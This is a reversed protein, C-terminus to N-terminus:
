TRPEVVAPDDAILGDVGAARLHRAQEATRVTWVNVARGAEHARAVVDVADFPGSVYRENFLPTGHVMNWPPHVAACDHRDAVTLGDEISRHFVTALPATPDVTRAAALAGEYFSSVLLDHDYEGALSLVREVFPRWRARERAVAEPALLGTAGPDVGPHKLEVNLRTETPLAAFVERLLPIREGSDLVDLDRLATLPTEHVARGALAAPPDTVRDLTADHFVVPEGSACPMVDLEVTAPGDAVSVAHEFARLTNEPNVDAFGRHAIVDTGDDGDTSEGAATSRRTQM